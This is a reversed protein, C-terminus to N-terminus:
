SKIEGVFSQMMIKGNRVCFTDGGFQVTPAASWFVCVYDGDVDQKITKMKSIVEPTLVAMVQKFAEGIKKLGKFAGNPTFLVSDETYDKLVEDLDRSMLAQVHHQLVAEITKGTAM